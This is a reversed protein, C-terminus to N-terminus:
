RNSWGDRIVGPKGPSTTAPAAVTAPLTVPFKQDFQELLEAIPKPEIQFGLHIAELCSRLARILYTRDPHHAYMGQLHYDIGCYTAKTCLPNIKYTRHVTEVLGKVAAGLAPLDVAAGQAKSDSNM